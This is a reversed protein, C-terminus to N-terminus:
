AREEQKRQLDILELARISNRLAECVSVGVHWNGAALLATLQSGYLLMATKAALEDRIDQETM